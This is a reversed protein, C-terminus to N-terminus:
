DAKAGSDRVLDGWFKVQRDIFQAREEKSM